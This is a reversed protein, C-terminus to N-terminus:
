NGLGRSLLFPYVICKDVICNPMFAIICFLLCYRIVSIVALLSFVIDHIM